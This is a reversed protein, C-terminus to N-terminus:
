YRINKIAVQDLSTTPDLSLILEITKAIERPDLGRDLDDRVIDGNKFLDTNILAPYIGSVKINTDKVDEQLCKTFGTMAWKSSNYVSRDSKALLGAMSVINIITGSDQKQMAPLVYKTTYITGLCNVAFTQAIKEDDNETLPGQIWIGANNILVDIKQHDQLIQEITNKVEEANTIDCLATQCSTQDKLENLKNEDKDLAIITNNGALTEIIARGLGGAGGTIVIIKDM